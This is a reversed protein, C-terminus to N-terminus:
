KGNKNDGKMFENKYDIKYFELFDKLKKKDIPLKIDFYQMFSNRFTELNIYSENKITKIFKRIYFYNFPVDNTVFSIYEFDKEKEILFDKMSKSYTTEILESIHRAKFIINKDFKSLQAFDKIYMPRMVKTILKANNFIIKYNRFIEKKGDEVNIITDPLDEIKVNNDDMYIYLDYRQEYSYGTNVIRKFLFNIKKTLDIKNKKKDIRIDINTTYIPTDKTKSGDIRDIDISLERFNDITFVIKNEKYFFINSLALIEQNFKINM